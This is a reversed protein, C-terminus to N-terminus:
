PTLTGQLGKLRQLVRDKRLVTKPNTGYATCMLREFLRTFVDALAAENQHVHVQFFEKVPDVVVHQHAADYFPHAAFCPPAFRAAWLGVFRHAM